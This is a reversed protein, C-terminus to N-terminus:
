PRALRRKIRSLEANAKALEDRLRTLEEEHARDEPKPVTPAVTAAALAASREDLATALRRMTTAETRHLGSPADALYSDLLALAERTSAANTPDLKYVARWYPVEAAEPSGPFRRAFDVLAKDAAAARSERAAGLAQTYAAPWESAATPVPVTSPSPQQPICGVAGILGLAAVFRRAALSV